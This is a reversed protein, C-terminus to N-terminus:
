KNNHGANVEDLSRGSRSMSKNEMHIIKGYKRFLLVSRKDLNREAIVASGDSGKRTDEMRRSQVLIVVLVYKEHHMPSFILM